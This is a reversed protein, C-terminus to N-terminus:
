FGTVMIASFLYTVEGNLLKMTNPLNIVDFMIRISNICFRKVAIYILHCDVTFYMITIAKGM